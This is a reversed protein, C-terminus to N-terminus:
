LNEALGLVSHLHDCAGLHQPGMVLPPDLEVVPDADALELPHGHLILPDARDTARQVALDEIRATKRTLGGMWVTPAGAHHCPRQHYAAPFQASLGRSFRIGADKWGLGDFRLRLRLGFLVGFELVGELASFDRVQVGEGHLLKLGQRFLVAYGDGAGLGVEDLQEVLDLRTDVVGIEGSGGQLRLQLIVLDSQQAGFLLQDFEQGFFLRRQLLSLQQGLM